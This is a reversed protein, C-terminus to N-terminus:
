QSLEFLQNCEERMFGSILELKPEGGNLIYECPINIQRWTFKSSLSQRDLADQLTAGFVIGRMRAWIAAAACMPCPEHTTYLVFDNLFRSGSAQCADRIAVIEAHVTPDNEHKLRTKGTGVIKDNRVIVAALAYDGEAASQRALEIAVSMFKKEAKM